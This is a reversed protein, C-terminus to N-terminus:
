TEETSRSVHVWFVMIKQPSRGEPSGCPCNPFTNSPLPHEPSNNTETKVGPAQLAWPQAECFPREAETVQPFEKGEEAEARIAKGSKTM